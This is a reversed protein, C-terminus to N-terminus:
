DPQTHYGIEATLTEVFVIINKSESNLMWCNQRVASMTECLATRGCRDLM